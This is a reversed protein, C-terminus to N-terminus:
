RPTAELELLTLYATRSTLALRSVLAAIDRGEVVPVFIVGRRNVNFAEAAVVREVSDLWGPPKHSLSVATGDDSLDYRRGRRRIRIVVPRHTAYVLGSALQLEGDGALAAVHADLRSRTQAVTDDIGLVQGTDSRIAMAM